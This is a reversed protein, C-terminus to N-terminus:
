YLDLKKTSANRHLKIKVCDKDLKEDNKSKILPFPPPEMHVQVTVLNWNKKHSCNKM